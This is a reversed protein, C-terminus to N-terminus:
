PSCTKPTSRYELLSGYVYSGTNPATLRAWEGKTCAVTMASGVPLTAIAPFSMGPGARVNAEDTVRAAVDAADTRKELSAVSSAPIATGAIPSSSCGSTSIVLTAATLLAVRGVHDPM